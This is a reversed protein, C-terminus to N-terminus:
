ILGARRRLAQLDRVTVCRQDMEIFGRESLAHLIQNVSQRSGGVMAGLDRQTLGLDLQIPDGETPAGQREVAGVLLKAVRGELDLFVLDATQVSLRRLMTGAAQMLAAAVRPDRRALESMTSRPFALLTVADIAEASASRPGGDFLSVDGLTGPPAVTAFVMEDGAGSSVFVKVTGEVVVYFADGPESEHFITTGRKYSRPHGETAIAELTVPDLEGFLATGALVKVKAETRM